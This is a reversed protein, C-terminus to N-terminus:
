QPVFLIDFQPDGLKADPPYFHMNCMGLHRKILHILQAPTVANAALAGDNIECFVMPRYQRLTNEMGKLAFFEWGEVDLKVFQPVALGLGDLRVTLVTIDGESNIRSAGVNDLCMFGLTDGAIDSAAVNLATAEPCNHVLCQYALPNPEVAVVTKGWDLYQRTHDGINAGIDWVVEVDGMFPKLFRFLSPDTIISGHEVAWKSLHTDHTIVWQGNPLQTIEPNM